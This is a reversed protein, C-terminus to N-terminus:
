QYRSVPRVANHSRHAQTTSANPMRSNDVNTNSQPIIIRRFLSRVAFMPCLISQIMSILMVHTQINQMATSSVSRIMNWPTQSDVRYWHISLLLSCLIQRILKNYIHYSYYKNQRQGVCSGNVTNLEVLFSQEIIKILGPM